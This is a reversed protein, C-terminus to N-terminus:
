PPSSSPTGLPFIRDFGLYLAAAAQPKPGFPLFFKGDLGNSQDLLLYKASDFSQLAQLTAGVANLDTDTEFIVPGSADPTSTSVQTGAPIQVSFDPLGPRPAGAITLTFTLDARAPAPPSLEIGILKLFEVYNKEPVQNLRWILMEELWAFLQVLTIGPDSENLDTWEPTYGPILRRADSVLSEFTRDDLQIDPLPM